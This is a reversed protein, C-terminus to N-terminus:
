SWRPKQLQFWPVDALPCAVRDAGSCQASVIVNREAKPWQQRSLQFHFLSLPEEHVKALVFRMEDNAGYKSALPSPNGSIM